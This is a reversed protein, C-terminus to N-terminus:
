SSVKTCGYLLHPMLKGRYLKDFQKIITMGLKEAVKRSSTNDPRIQATLLRVHLKNFAYDKCASACEFAFGQHWFEKNFIYGVGIYDQNDAKEALLGAVGIFKGSQKEIVAWYSYGDRTYRM